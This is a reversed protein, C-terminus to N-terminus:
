DHEVMGKMAMMLFGTFAGNDPALDPDVHAKMTIIQEKFAEYFELSPKPNYILDALEFAEIIGKCTTPKIFVEVHPYYYYQVLTMLTWKALGGRGLIDLLMHFGKARDGHLQEYFGGAMLAQEDRSMGAVFDRFRMKEFVSVLSSAAVVRAVAEVAAAPDRFRAPALQEHVMETLKGIRHRSRMEKLRDGDFGGPYAEIFASEAAKLKEINM